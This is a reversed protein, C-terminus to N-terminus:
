GNADEVRELSNVHVEVQEGSDLEVLLWCPRLYRVVRGADLINIDLAEDGLGVSRRTIRLMQGPYLWDPKKDVQDM